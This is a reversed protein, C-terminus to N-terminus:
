AEAAVPQRAGHLREGARVLANGIVQRLLTVRGSRSREVEFEHDYRKRNAERTLEAARLYALVYIHGSQGADM